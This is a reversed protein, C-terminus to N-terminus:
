LTLSQMLYSRFRGGRGLQNAIGTDAGVALGKVGLEPLQLRGVAHPNVPFLHRTRPGVPLLKQLHEPLECGTVHHHHRPNVAQCARGEVQEGDDFLDGVGARPKPRQGLRPGISAGLV